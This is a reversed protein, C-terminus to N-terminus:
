NGSQPDLGPGMYQSHLNKAVPGGPFDRVTTKIQMERIIPSTPRRKVHGKGMQPDLWGPTAEQAPSGLGREAEGPRCFAERGGEQFSRRRARCGFQRM